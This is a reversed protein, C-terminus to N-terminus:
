DYKAGQVSVGCLMYSEPNYRVYNYIAPCITEFYDEISRCSEKVDWSSIVLVVGVDGVLKRLYKIVLLNKTVNSMTSANPKLKDAEKKLEEKDGANSDDEKVLKMAHDGLMFQSMNSIFFLIGQSSKCFETFKLDFNGNITDHHTERKTDPITSDIVQRDKKKLSWKTFKTERDTPHGM